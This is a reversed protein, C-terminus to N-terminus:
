VTKAQKKQKVKETKQKRVKGRSQKKLRQRGTLLVAEEEKAILYKHYDEYIAQKQQENLQLILKGYSTNEKKAAWAIASIWKSKPLNGPKKKLMSKEVVKQVGEQLVRM